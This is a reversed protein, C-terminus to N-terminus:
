RVTLSEPTPKSGSAAFFLRPRPRMLMSSRSFSRVPVSDISEWGLRPVVIWARTGRPETLSEICAVLYRVSPFCFQEGVDPPSAPIEDVHLRESTHMDALEVSVRSKIEDALPPGFRLAICQETFAVM